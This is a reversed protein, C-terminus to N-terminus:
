CQYRVSTDERVNLQASITALGNNLQQSFVPFACHLKTAEKAVDAVSKSITEVNTQTDTVKIAIQDSTTGVASIALNMQQLLSSYPKCNSTSM